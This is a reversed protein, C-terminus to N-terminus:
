QPYQSATVSEFRRSLHYNLTRYNIEVIITFSSVWEAKGIRLPQVNGLYALEVQRNWLVDPFYWERSM